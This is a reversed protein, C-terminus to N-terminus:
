IKRWDVRPSGPDVFSALGKHRRQGDPTFMSSPYVMFVNPSGLRWHERNHWLFEEWMFDELKLQVDVFAAVAKSPDAVLSAYVGPEIM